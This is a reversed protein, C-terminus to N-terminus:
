MIIIDHRPLIYLFSTKYGASRVKHPFLFGCDKRFLVSSILREPIQPKNAALLSDCFLVNLSPLFDM